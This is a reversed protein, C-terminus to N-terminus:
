PFPLKTSFQFAHLHNKRSFQHKHFLIKMPSGKNKNLTSVSTCLYASPYMLVLGYQIKGNVAICQHHLVSSASSKSLQRSDDLTNETIPRRFAKSATGLLKWFHWPGSRGVARLRHVPTLIWQLLGRKAALTSVVSLKKLLISTACLVTRKSVWTRQLFVCKKKWENMAVIDYERWVLKLLWIFSQTSSYWTHPVGVLDGELDFERYNLCANKCVLFSCM